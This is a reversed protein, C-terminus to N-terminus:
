TIKNRVYDDKRLVANWLRWYWALNHSPLFWSHCEKKLSEVFTFCWHAKQYPDVNIPDSVQYNM